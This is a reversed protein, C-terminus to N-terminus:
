GPNVITMPVIVVGDYNESIYKLMWFNFNRWNVYDQFDSKVLECPINDRIYFGTNEPDFVFAKKIKRSFEYAITTKGSGFAGNIWIIM